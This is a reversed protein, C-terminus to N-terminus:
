ALVKSPVRGELFRRARRIRGEVWAKARRQIEESSLPKRRRASWARLSTIAFEEWVPLLFEDTTYRGKLTGTRPFFSLAARAEMAKLGYMHPLITELLAYAKASRIQFGLMPLAISHSTRTSCYPTRLIASIARIADFDNMGGGVLLSTLDNRSSHTVGVSGEDMVWQAVRIRDSQSALVEKVFNSHRVEPRSKVDLKFCSIWRTVVHRTVGFAAAVANQTGLEDFAQRIIAPNPDKSIRRQGCPLYRFQIENSYRDIRSLQPWLRRALGYTFDM